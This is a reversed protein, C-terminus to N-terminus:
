KKVVADAAKDIDTNTLRGWKIKRLEEIQEATKGKREEKTLQVKQWPYIVNPDARRCVDPIKKESEERMRIVVDVPAEVRVPQRKPTDTTNM